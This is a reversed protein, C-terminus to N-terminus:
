RRWILVGSATSAGFGTVREIIGMTTRRGKNDPVYLVDDPELTFDQQKRDLIKQLEVPIEKREVSGANGRYVFATKAAYPALGESFALMKLITSDPSDRLVFAGPRKVNGVVYIKRAEPVRIEEGGTLISNLKPDAADILEKLAIREVTSVPPGTGGGPDPRTLLLDPGAEPSLGEARAVADLLTVRGVAQFTIPKKVAGVVSITRSNYELITVTVVPDVLIEATKLAEAIANELQNPLLGRADIRAGLMPLRMMGDAAVRVTRTLEPADYVSVAILDNAAIKQAPLNAVNAVTQDVVGTRSEAQVMPCSALLLILHARM